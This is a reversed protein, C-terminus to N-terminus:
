RYASSRNCCIEHQEGKTPTGLAPSSGARGLRVSPNLGEADAM